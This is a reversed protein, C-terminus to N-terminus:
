EYVVNGLKYVSRNLLEGIWAASFGTISGIQNLTKNEWYFLKLLYQEQFDLQAEKILFALEDRNDILREEENIQEAVRLLDFEEKVGLTNTRFFKRIHKRSGEELRIYDLMECKVKFSAKKISDVRQVKGRLWVGNILEYKEYKENSFIRAWKKLFPLLESYTLSMVFGM